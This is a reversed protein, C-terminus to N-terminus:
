KGEPAAERAPEAKISAESLLNLFDEYMIPKVLHGDVEDRWASPAADSTSCLFVPINRTVPNAKLGQVIEQGTAGPRDSVLVFTPQETQALAFAAQVEATAILQCGVRDAYRRLLYLFGPDNEVLLMKPSSQDAM